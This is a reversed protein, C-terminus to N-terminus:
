QPSRGDGRAGVPQQSGSTHQEILAKIHSDALRDRLSWMAESYATNLCAEETSLALSSADLADGRFIDEWFPLGTESDVLSVHLAMHAEVKQALVEPSMESWFVRIEVDVLPTGDPGLVQDSSSQEVMLYGSLEFCHKLHERVIETLEMGRHLLASGDQAGWSNRKVGLAEVIPRCDRVARLRVVRPAGPAPEDTPVLAPVTGRVNVGQGTEAHLGGTSDAM